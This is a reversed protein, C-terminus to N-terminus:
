LGLFQGVLVLQFLILILLCLYFNGFLGSIIYLILMKMPGIIAEVIKGFIFLSLMNMLIHEFNFHLFMSTILRYWEGHVVNFHVLGGM